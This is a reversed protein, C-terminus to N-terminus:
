QAHVLSSQLSWYFFTACYHWPFCLMTPITSTCSLAKKSTKISCNKYNFSGFDYVIDTSNLPLSKFCMSLFSLAIQQVLRCKVKATFLTSLSTAREQFHYMALHVCVIILKFVVKRTRWTHCEVNDQLWYIYIYM